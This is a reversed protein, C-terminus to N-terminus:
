TNPISYVLHNIKIYTEHYFLTVLHYVINICFYHLQFPYFPTLIFKRRILCTEPIIKICFDNEIYKYEM